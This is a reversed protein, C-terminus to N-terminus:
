GVFEALNATEPKSPITPLHALLPGVKQATNKSVAGKGESGWWRGSGGGKGKCLGM